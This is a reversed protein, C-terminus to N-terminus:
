APRLAEPILAMNTTHRAPDPDPIAAVAALAARYAEPLRQERAGALVLARYWLYPRLAPDTGTAVYLWAAVPGGDTAVLLEARDYGQGFGEIRDLADREAASLHYLAGWVRDEPAGPACDCKGSGDHSRKHWLLRRGAAWGTGIRRAGPIRATLRATLLNSGYAFYAADRM